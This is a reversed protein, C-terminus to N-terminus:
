FVQLTKFMEPTLSKTCVLIIHITKYSGFAKFFPQTKNEWNTISKLGNLGKCIIRTDGCVLQGPLTKCPMWPTNDETFQIFAYLIVGWTRSEKSMDEAYQCSEKSFKAHKCHFFLDTNLQKLIIKFMEMLIIYFHKHMFRTRINVLTNRIRLNKLFLCHVSQNHSKKFGWM